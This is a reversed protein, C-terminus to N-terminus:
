PILLLNFINKILAITNLFIKVNFSQHIIVKIKSTSLAYTFKLHGDVLFTLFDLIEDVQLRSQKKSCSSFYFSKVQM